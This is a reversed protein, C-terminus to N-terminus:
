SGANDRANGGDENHLRDLRGLLERERSDFEEETIAGGDLARHLATLDAMIAREEAELDKQVAEDIKKLVFMLGRAPALLLDDIIFM